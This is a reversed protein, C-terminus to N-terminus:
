PLGRKCKWEEGIGNLRSDELIFQWRFKGHKQLDRKGNLIRVRLPWKEGPDGPEGGKLGPTQSLSSVTKGRPSLPLQQAGDGGGQKNQM